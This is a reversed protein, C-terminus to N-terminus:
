VTPEQSADIKYIATHIHWDWGGLKDRGGYKGKPLGLNPKSIKSDTETKYTRNYMKILNWVNNIDYSIQGEWVESLIIIELDVWM